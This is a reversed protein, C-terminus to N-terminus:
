WVMVLRVTYNFLGTSKENDSATFTYPPVLWLHHWVMAYMNRVAAESACVRECRVGELKWYIFFFIMM